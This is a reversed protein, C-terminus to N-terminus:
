EQNFCRKFLGTVLKRGYPVYSLSYWFFACYQIIIFILVLWVNKLVLASILTMVIASLFIITVIIRTKQFMRKIQKVPGMLFM